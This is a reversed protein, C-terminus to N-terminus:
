YPIEVIQESFKSDQTIHNVPPVLRSEIESINFFTFLTYTNSDM